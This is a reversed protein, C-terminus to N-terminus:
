AADALRLREFGAELDAILEGPDELGIHLRLMPGDAAWATASRVREPFAPMILSEYGGWSAGIPFLHLGDVMAAVAEATVPKLIMSFLGSAGDFDRQWLAHGPDDPLAPHLVRAVEPRGQLWRAVALGSEQHRALRAPLTRLGRAGQYLDDPGACQGLMVQTRKLSLFQERTRAVVVGLMIDSHGCIYKTAAHIVYDVGHEIPRFYLPTAWTNDILTTVGRAAAAAAIAPVDQMEFTLSGPSELFVARTRDDILGDIDAGILPDYFVTEVGLRALVQLAFRRTPGYVTDAVLIRDGAQALAMLATTIAALGSSTSVAGAGGELEAIPKEFADSTPTGIRGYTYRDFGSRERDLWDAVTPSAITSAHYVPPNLIGHHAFPDRGAHAFRTPSPRSM